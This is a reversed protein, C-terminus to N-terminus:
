RTLVTRVVGLNNKDNNEEWTENITILHAVFVGAVEGIKEIRIVDVAILM